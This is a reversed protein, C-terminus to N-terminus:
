APVSVAKAQDKEELEREGRGLYARTLPVEDITKAVQIQFVVLGEYRFACECGALYFEWMRCFEEGYLARAEDRHMLFRRRWESLTKAYHLRLIEIDTVVLGAKEIAPVIQSLSPLYGGPFIHRELWPNTEFPMTARGITHIMAVGKDNLLRALTSFFTEYNELGVHEFMGVSVVRDFTDEIKRYDRFLFHVRDSLGEAMAREQAIRLQERSLTVGTVDVDCHKALYLSLGGWGSGIDLVKQGPKLLLKVAIHRKKARQAEELDEVGDEFYACSYQLDQDLFLSYLRHDMDYHHAVNRQSRELNNRKRKILHPLPLGITRATAYHRFNRSALALVEFISGKLVEIRGASFLEGFALEPHLMFRLESLLDKFRIAVARGTHDGVEFSQGTATVVELTGQKIASSFFAKLLM